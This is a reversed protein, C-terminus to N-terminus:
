ALRSFMEDLETLKDSAFMDPSFKVIQRISGSKLTDERGTEKAQKVLESMQPFVKLVTDWAKKDGMLAGLPADLNLAGKYVVEVYEFDGFMHKLWNISLSFWVAVDNNVLNKKGNSTFLKALSLGHAGNAFVHLEFGVKAKDLANAYLMSNEILVLPDNRTSFIFTQPTSSDVKAILEPFEKDLMKGFEAIICPYGLIAANPRIKGMVSLWAALHGGASFGIVAIKNKDINLEQAHEHLYSIAENADEFAKSCPEETGVSYRLIFTNYGETLYALAVPDAERDSCIMYGGGPFVLMAPRIDANSMEGSKDHIYGTLTVNPNSFNKVYQKM